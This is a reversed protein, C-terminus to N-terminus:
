DVGEEFPFLGDGFGGVLDGGFALLASGRQCLHLGQRGKEARFGSRAKTLALRALTAPLMVLLALHGIVFEGVRTTRAPAAAPALQSSQAAAGERHDKSPVLRTVWPIM